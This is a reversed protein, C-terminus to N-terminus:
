MDRGFSLYIGGSMFKSLAEPDKSTYQELQDTGIVNKNYYLDVGFETNNDFSYGTNMNLVELDGSTARM